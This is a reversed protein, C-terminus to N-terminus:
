KDLEWVHGSKAPVGAGLGAVIRSLRTRAEYVAGYAGVTGDRIENVIERLHILLEELDDAARLAKSM